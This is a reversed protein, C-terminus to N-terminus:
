RGKEGEDQRTLWEINQLPVQGWEPEGTFREGDWVLEVLDYSEPLGGAGAPSHVVWTTREVDLGYRHLVETAVQPVADVIGPGPNDPADSLVVVARQTRYYIHVRCHATVDSDPTTYDVTTDTALM